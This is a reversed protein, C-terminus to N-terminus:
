VILLKRVNRVSTSSAAIAVPPQSAHASQIGTWGAPCFNTMSRGPYEVRRM